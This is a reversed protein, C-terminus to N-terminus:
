KLNGSNSKLTKAFYGITVTMVVKWLSQWSIEGDILFTAAGNVIATGIVLILGSLMDRLNWTMGDSNSPMAWNKAMYVLSTGFITILLVGINIGQEVNDGIFAAIVAVITMVFNKWFNNNKM